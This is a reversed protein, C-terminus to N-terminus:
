RRELELAYVQAPILQMVVPSGDQTVTTWQTPRAPYLSMDVLQEIAGDAVRVRRLAAVSGETDYYIYREDSSWTPNNVHDAGLSRWRKTAFQFIRLQQGRTTLAAVYRGSPSWRSTLLGGSDPLSSSRQSSLDYLHVVENGDPVGFVEPVDGFVLQAGDPSWTAAGQEVDDAVLPQPARGDRSM